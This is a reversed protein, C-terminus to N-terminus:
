RCPSGDLYTSPADELGTNDSGTLYETIQRNSEALNNIAATQQQLATILEVLLSEM